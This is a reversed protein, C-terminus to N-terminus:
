ETETAKKKRPRGRPITKLVRGVKAGIEEIFKATGVPRGQKTNSRIINIQNEDDESSLFQEWKIVDFDLMGIIDEINIKMESRRTHFAASSWQWEWANKVLGSRVPNREVYRIATMLHPEDLVCSYFRGQWLHGSASM